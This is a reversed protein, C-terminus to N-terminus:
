TLRNPCLMTRQGRLYEDIIIKMRDVSFSEFHGAHVTNVPLERLRLLSEHLKEPISHYLHDYLTGNYLTDGSFIIGTAEEWLAISGPSHGPLHIVRLFRDELDIVDEEDVRDTLPDPKYCWREVNFGAYPLKKIVAAELLDAVISSRTPNAFIKAEASHGLRKKFQSLGGAHDHHSHTCVAIVPRESLITIDAAIPRFGMGTDIILDADRGKLHWINCRWNSSIHTEIILSINFEFKKIEYWKM